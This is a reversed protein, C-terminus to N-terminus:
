ARGALRLPVPGVADLPGTGSACITASQRQDAVDYEDFGWRAEGVHFPRISEGPPLRQLAPVEVEILFRGGPELHAAANQFCAM